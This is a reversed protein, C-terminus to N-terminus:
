IFIALKKLKETGPEFSFEDTKLGTSNRLENLQSQFMKDMLYSNVNLKEMAPRFNHFRYLRDRAFYGSTKVKPEIFKFSYLPIPAELHYIRTNFKKGNAFLKINSYNNLGIVYDFENSSDYITDWSYYNQTISSSFYYFSGYTPRNINIDPFAQILAKKKNLVLKDKEIRKENKKIRLDISEVMKAFNNM